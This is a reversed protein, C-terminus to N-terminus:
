AGQSGYMGRWDGYGAANRRTVKYKADGTDPDDSSTFKPQKRDFYNVDHQDAQVYWADTDTMYHSLHPKLGEDAIQNIDNQNGGPLNTSKLLQAVMWHDGPSHIVYKPMFMAPIGGEDTLNHFHEVAAQLSAMDIDADTTPRNSATGGRLLAHSTSLLSEASVFGVFSTSFANNFVSHAIIEFNNRVSRGLAKSAKSLFIGYLDDDYMEETVRFGLGYKLATYRKTTGQILDQYTVSQGENIQDLTGFGAIPFDELYARTMSNMNVIQAGELPREKYTEFLIKRVGPALLGSFGGRTMPAM